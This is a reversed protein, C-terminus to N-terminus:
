KVAWLFRPWHGPSSLWTGCAKFTRLAAAFRQPPPMLIFLRRHFAIQWKRKSNFMQSAKAWFTRGKSCCRPFSWGHIYVLPCLHCKYCDQGFCCFSGGSVFASLLRFSYPCSVLCLVINSLESFFNIFRLWMRCCPSFRLLMFTSCSIYISNGFYSIM